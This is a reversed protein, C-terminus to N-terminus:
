SSQGIMQCPALNQHMESSLCKVAQCALQILSNMDRMCLALFTPGNSQDKLRGFAISARAIRQTEEANINASSTLPSGIYTFKDALTLSEGNVTINPEMHPARPSPHHLVLTKKTSIALGFDTCATAFLEKSVKM